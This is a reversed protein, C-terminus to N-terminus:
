VRLEVLPKPQFYGAMGNKEYKEYFSQLEPHQREHSKLCAVSQLIREDQKDLDGDCWALARAIACFKHKDEPHTIKKYMAEVDQPNAFDGSLILLQKSSFHISSRYEDLVAREEASVEHDTFAFAFIARWMAFESESIGQDFDVVQGM